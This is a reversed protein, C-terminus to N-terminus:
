CVWILVEGGAEKEGMQSERGDRDRVDGLALRKSM